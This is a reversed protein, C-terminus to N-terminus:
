PSAQPAVGQRATDGVGRFTDGAPLNTHHQDYAKVASDAARIGSKVGTGRGTVLSGMGEKGRREVVEGVEGRLM